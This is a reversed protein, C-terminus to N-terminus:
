NKISVRLWERKGTREDLYIETTKEDAHGLLEQPNVKGEQKYLRGSLSRIEHFTPPAKDGWDIGLRELANSFHLSITDVAIPDGARSKNWNRTQHILHKSLVGTSRCQKIVDGLSMGLCNLRLELPLIIRAGSKMRDCWWAGDHVDKVLASACEERAQGSLLSLAYVNKAWITDEAEYVRKFVDFSLRARKIRIKIAPAAEAPNDKRWGRVIMARFSEILHARMGHATTLMRAATLKDLESVIDATTIESAARSEEFMSAARRLERKYDKISNPALPKDGKGALLIPEYHKIWAGWSKGPEANIREVLSREKSALSANAQIAQKIAKQRDSGLGYEIGTDPHRWSYYGDRVRTYAPLSRNIEKRRRPAM